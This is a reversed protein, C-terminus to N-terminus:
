APRSASDTQRLIVFQQELTLSHEYLTKIFDDGWRAFYPIFNDTREQLKGNPFLAKRVAEVQRQVADFKRKEARLLKKELAELRRLSQTKLAQVHRAMGPDVKGAVKEVHDYLEGAQAIEGPLTVQQESRQRVLGALLEDPDRFLDGAEVELKRILRDWKEEIFLFSNRLLLLPYPVKYHEFLEKLELWYALEGGGGVFAIDPLIMGQFLGRLIVNPSFRDPHQQLEEELEQETFHIEQNVVKWGEPTKIIRDRIDDKLYFLNIERPNAQVKYHQGLLKNTKEVISSPIQRWLDDKFVTLMAAKLQRNDPLLVLLGYEAFLRNVLKFTATQIDSRGDYYERLLAILAPGHPHVGIEGALRDILPKLGATSMRGVAGTQKTDWTIKEGEMYIKGLEELDADESGMFFVPVFNNEPFQVRLTECLKIVHLIKYIFYLYGTFLNPQHATTVTFTNEQLLSELNAKVAKSIPASSYQQTLEQVLLQRNVPSAKRAKIAEAMGAPSIDHKYFPRLTAAGALYDLSIKSFSGTTAYSILTSICDM